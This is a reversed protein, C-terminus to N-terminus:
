LKSGGETEPETCNDLVYQIAKSLVQAAGADEGKDYGRIYGYVFGAAWMFALGLGVVITRRM